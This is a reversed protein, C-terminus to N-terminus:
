RVATTITPAATPAATPAIRVRARVTVDRGVALTGVSWRLARYEAFPVDFERTSGDPLVARRRLPIADFRAGDLSAHTPQPSVKSPLYETGVPIPMTPMVQTADADGRNSYRAAYEVTDGPRAATAAAISESTGDFRIVNATLRADVLPAANAVLAVLAAATVLILRVLILIM